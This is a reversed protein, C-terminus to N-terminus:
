YSSEKMILNESYRKSCVQRYSVNDFVQASRPRSVKRQKIARFTIFYLCPIRNGNLFSQGERAKKRERSLCKKDTSYSQSSCSRIKPCRRQIHLHFPKTRYQCAFGYKRM